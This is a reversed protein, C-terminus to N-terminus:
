ELPPLSAKDYADNITRRMFAAAQSDSLELHFRSRLNEVPRGRSYCPLGSEEMLSVTAM